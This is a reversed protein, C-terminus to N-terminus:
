RGPASAPFRLAQNHFLLLALSGPGQNFIYDHPGTLKLYRHPIGNARLMRHMKEVSRAMSDGDSTILQIAKKKLAERNRKVLREYLGMFPGFAGQVSGISSFMKPYKFGYYMSRAGGMSVGDIGVSEPAIRYRKKLEPLLEKVIFAEYAPLDLGQAVSLLPSYPCVLIVGDYPHHALQENFRRLQAATVLGKFDAETLRNNDLARVAEDTKYYKVWALAGQRPPRMCEGAGGFALVLPYRKEPRERYDPPLSVSVMAQSYERSPVILYEVPIQYGSLEETFPGTVDPAKPVSALERRTEGLRFPFRNPAKVDAPRPRAAALRDRARSVDSSSDATTPAKEERDPARATVNRDAPPKATRVSLDPRESTCSALYSSLIFTLVPILAVRGFARIGPSGM